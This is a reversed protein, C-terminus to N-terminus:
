HHRWSGCARMGPGPTLFMGVLDVGVIEIRPRAGGRPSGYGGPDLAKGTGCCLDLWAATRGSAARGKLFDLPDLGLEKTTAM